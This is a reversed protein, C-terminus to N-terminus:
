YNKIGLIIISSPKNLDYVLNEIDQEVHYTPITGTREIEEIFKM